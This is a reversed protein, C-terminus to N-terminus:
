KLNGGNDNCRQIVELIKNRIQQVSNVIERKFGEQQQNKQDILNKLNELLYIPNTNQSM